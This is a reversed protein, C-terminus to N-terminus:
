QQVIQDIQTAAAKLLAANNAGPQMSKQIM